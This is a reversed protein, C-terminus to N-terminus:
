CGQAISKHLRCIQHMLTWDSIPVSLNWIGVICPVYTHYIHGKVESRRYSNYCQRSRAIDWLLVLLRVFNWSLNIYRHTVSGKVWHPLVHTWFQCNLSVFGDRLLMWHYLYYWVIYKSYMMKSLRAPWGVKSSSPNSSCASYIRYIQFTIM